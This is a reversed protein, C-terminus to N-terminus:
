SIVTLMNSAILFLASVVKWLMLNAAAYAALTDRQEAYVLKKWESVYTSAPAVVTFMHESAPLDGRIVVFITLDSM